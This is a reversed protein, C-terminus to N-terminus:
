QADSLAALERYAGARDRFVGGPLIGDDTRLDRIGTGRHRVGGDAADVAAHQDGRLRRDQLEGARQRNAGRFHSRVRPLLVVARLDDDGVRAAAAHPKWDPLRPRQWYGLPLAPFGMGTEARLRAWMAYYAVILGILLVGFWLRSGAAWCFYVMFAFSVLLVIGAWRYTMPEGAETPDVRRSLALRLARALHQRGSWLVWVLLALAVGGGQYFCAPFDTTYADPVQGSVGIVVALVTLARNVIWFFWCSFSLEKPLLFALAILWPSLSVDIEGLGAIWGSPAQQMAVVNLPIAPLVPFRNALGNYCDLGGAILVGMWFIWATGGPLVGRGRANERVMELPVQALPFPLRENTIWQRQVIVILCLACSFLAVFFGLWAALPVWWLSWPVTSQGQFFDTVARGDTPAFWLPIYSLFAGGWEPKIQAQYYFAVVKPLMWFLIGHTMLPAGMSVAAFIVLLERRSLGLGRGWRTRGLAASMATLLALIVLPMAQPVGSCMESRYWKIELLYNLPVIALVLALSLLIARPTVGGRRDSPVAKGVYPDLAASPGSDRRSM